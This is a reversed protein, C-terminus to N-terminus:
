FHVLTLKLLPTSRADAKVCRLPTCATRVSEYVQNRDAHCRRAGGTTADPLPDGVATASGTTRSDTRYL